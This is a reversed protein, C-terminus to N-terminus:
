TYQQAQLGYLRAYTGGKDLLELHTGYEQITWRPINSHKCVMYARM